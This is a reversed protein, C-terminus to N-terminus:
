HFCVISIMKLQASFSLPQGSSNMLEKVVKRGLQMARTADDTNITKVSTVTPEHQLTLFSMVCLLVILLLFIVFFSILIYRKYLKM